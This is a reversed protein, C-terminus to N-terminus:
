TKQATGLQGCGKESWHFDSSVSFKLLRCFHSFLQIHIHPFIHPFYTSFIPFINPFTFGFYPSSKEKLTQIETFTELSTALLYRGLGPVTSRLSLIVVTVPFFIPCTSFVSGSTAPPEWITGFQSIQMHTYRCYTCYVLCFFFTSPNFGEREFGSVRQYILM